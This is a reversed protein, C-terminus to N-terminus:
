LVDPPKKFREIFQEATLLQQKMSHILWRTEEMTETLATLKEADASIFPHEDLASFPIRDTPDPKLSQILFKRLSTSINVPLGISDASNRERQVMLDRLHDKGTLCAYTIAGVGWVDAKERNQSGILVEPASFITNADPVSETLGVDSLNLIIDDVEPYRMDSGRRSQLMINSPKLNDHTIGATRLAKLGAIIQKVFYHIVSEDLPGINRLYAKLNGLEYKHMIVCVSTHQKTEEKIVDFVPVIHEERADSLQEWATIKGMVIDIDGESEPLSIRKIISNRTFDPNWGVYTKGSGGLANTTDFSWVIRGQKQIDFIDM